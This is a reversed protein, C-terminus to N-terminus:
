CQLLVRAGAKWGGGRMDTSGVTRGRRVKRGVSM